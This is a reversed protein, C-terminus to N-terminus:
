AQVAHGAQAAIRLHDNEQVCGLSIFKLIKILVKREVTLKVATKSRSNKHNRRRIPKWRPPRLHTQHRDSGEIWNMNGVFVSVRILLKLLSEM